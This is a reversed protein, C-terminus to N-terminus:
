KWAALSVCIAVPKSCSNSWNTPWYACKVLYGTWHPAVVFDRPSLWGAAAGAGPLKRIRVETTEHLFGDHAPKVRTDVRCRLARYPVMKAEPSAHIGPALGRMVRLISSFSITSRRPHRAPVCELGGAGLWGDGAGGEPISPRPAHLAVSAPPRGVTHPSINMNAFGIVGYRLEAEPAHFAVRRHPGDQVYLAM